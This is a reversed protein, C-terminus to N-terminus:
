LIEFKLMNESNSYFYIDFVQEDTSIKCFLQM